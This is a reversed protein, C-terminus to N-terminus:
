KPCSPCCLGNTTTPATTEKECLTPFCFVDKCTPSPKGGHSGTPGTIKKGVKINPNVCYGCCHGPVTEVTFGTPCVLNGCTVTSCPDSITPGQLFSDSSDAKKAVLEAANAVGSFLNPNLGKLKELIPGLKEMKEEVAEPDERLFQLFSEGSQKASGAEAKDMMGSLAGFAKPDLGKLKELVPALRDMVESPDADGTHRQIFSEKSEQQHEVGGVMHELTGFAKPDLNKLKDLVPALRDMVADVDPAAAVAVVGFTITRIM